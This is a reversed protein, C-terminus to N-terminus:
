KGIRNVSVGLALHMVYSLKEDDAFNVLSPYGLSLSLVEIM